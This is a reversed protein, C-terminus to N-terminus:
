FKLLRGLAGRVIRLPRTIRWSLTKILAEHLDNQQKLEDWLNQNEDRLNHNENELKSIRTRMSLGQAISAIEKDRERLDFLQAELDILKTIKKM